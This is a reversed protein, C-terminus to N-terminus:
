TFCAITACYYTTTTILNYFRMTKHLKTEIRVSKRTVIAYNVKCFIATAHDSGITRYVGWRLVLQVWTIKLNCNASYILGIISLIQSHFGLLNSVMNNLTISYRTLCSFTFFLLLNVLM